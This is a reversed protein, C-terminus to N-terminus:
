ESTALFKSSDSKYTYNLFTTFVSHSTVRSKLKGKIRLIGLYCRVNIGFYSEQIWDSNPSGRVVNQALVNQALVGLNMM